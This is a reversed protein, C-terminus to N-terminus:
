YKYLIVFENWAKAKMGSAATTSSHWSEEILKECMQSIDLDVQVASSLKWLPGIVLTNIRHCPMTEVKKQQHYKQCLSPCAGTLQDDISAQRHLSALSTRGNRSSSRSRIRIPRGELEFDEAKQDFTKINQNICKERSQEKTWERETYFCVVSMSCYIQSPPYKNHLGVSRTSM